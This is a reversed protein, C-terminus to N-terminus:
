LTTDLRRRRNSTTPRHHCPKVSREPWNETDPENRVAVTIRAETSRWGRYLDQTLGPGGSM